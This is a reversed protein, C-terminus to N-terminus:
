LCFWQGWVWLFPVHHFDVTFFFVLLGGQLFLVSHSFVFLAHWMAYVGFGIGVGVHLLSFCPLFFLFSLFMLGLLLLSVRGERVVLSPSMYQHLFISRCSFSIILGLFNNGGFYLCMQVFKFWVSVNLIRGSGPTGSQIGYPPLVQLSGRQFYRRRSLSLCLYYHASVSARICQV